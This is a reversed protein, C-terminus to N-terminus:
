WDFIRDFIQYPPGLWIPAHDKGSLRIASDAKPPFCHSQDMMVLRVPRVIPGEDAKHGDNEPDDRQRNGEDSHRDILDEAQHLLLRLKRWVARQYPQL